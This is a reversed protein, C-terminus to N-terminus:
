LGFKTSRVAEVARSAGELDLHAASQRGMLYLVIESPRGSLTASSSEPAAVRAALVSGDPRRLDLGVPGLSRTLFRAVRNLYKWLADDISAIAAEIRPSTDGGGRRVDEHHVYFEVLNLIRDVPRLLLPPGLRLTQVLSAYPRSTVRHTTEHLVSAFPGGLFIGPSAIPHRERIVLHVTLDLTNWGECLTPAGPGLTLLLNCLADRELQQLQVNGKGVSMGQM